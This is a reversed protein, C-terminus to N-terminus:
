DATRLQALEGYIADRSSDSLCDIDAAAVYDAAQTDDFGVDHALASKIRDLLANGLELLQPRIETALDPVTEPPPATGAEWRAIWCRQVDKAAEIQAEFFKRATAADLGAATAAETAKELVVAERARDEVAVGNARKWAAVSKMLSLREAIKDFVAGALPEAHAQSPLTVAAAFGPGIAWCFVLLKLYLGLRATM